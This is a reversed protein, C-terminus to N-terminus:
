NGKKTDPPPQIPKDGAAKIKKDFRERLQADKTPTVIFYVFLREVLDLLWEAEESDVEIVVDQDDKKTHAGFDGIRRFHELNQRVELPRSKDNMVKQVRGDLDWDKMGAYEALLDALIRRSMVASMRPSRNLIDVAEAFDRRYHPAVIPDIPRSAGERPRVIWTQNNQLSAPGHGHVVREHVRVVLEDCTDNACRM